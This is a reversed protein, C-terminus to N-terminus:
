RRSGFPRRRVVRAATLARVERAGAAKLARACADLTAGTTTVDDVLLVCCGSLDAARAGRAPWWRPRPAPAFAGRVNAHRRAAPLEVQPATQRRRCLADRTPLGLAAALDAAQNFGRWRERGAHLPVPVVWDVGELLPGAHSKMLRGLRRAVSRRRDYKLVHVIQRLAGTYEGIARARDIARPTRRCRPCRATVASVLRWSPLPDGCAECMPPTMPRIAAWCTECVPGGLPEELLGRCVACRPALLVCLLANAPISMGALRSRTGLNFGEGSGLRDALAHGHGVRTGGTRWVDLDGFFAVAAM